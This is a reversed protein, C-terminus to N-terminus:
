LFIYVFVLRLLYCYVIEELVFYCVLLFDLLELISAM